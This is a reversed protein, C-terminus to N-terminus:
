GAGRAIDGTLARRLRHAVPQYANSPIEHGLALTASLAESVATCADAVSMPVPVLGGSTMPGLVERDLRAPLMDPLVFADELAAGLDHHDILAVIPAVRGADRAVAVIVQQQRPADVPAAAWAAVPTQDQLGAICTAEPVTGDTLRAALFGGGGEVVVACASLLDRCAPTGARAMAGLLAILADEPLLRAIEEIVVEVLHARGLALVSQALSNPDALWGAPGATRQAFRALAAEGDLQHALDVLCARVVAHRSAGSRALAGQVTRRASREDGISLMAIAAAYRDDPDDDIGGRTVGGAADAMREM